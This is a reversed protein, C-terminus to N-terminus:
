KGLVSEVLEDALREKDDFKKAEALAIQNKIRAVEEKCEQDIKACSEEFKKQANRVRQKIVKTVRKAITNGFM